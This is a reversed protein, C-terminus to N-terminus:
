EPRGVVVYQHPLDVDKIEADLGGAELERVVTEPALRHKKPPGMPADAHFDIVWM